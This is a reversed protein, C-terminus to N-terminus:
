IEYVIPDNIPLYDRTCISANIYITDKEEIGYAEHIHGFIHLKPKIQEVKQLLEECGTNIGERTLDCINKPPTHTILVDTDKPIKDWIKRLAKGRPLNFAWNYFEPQWPSGYFKINDVTYEQDQLYIIDELWKYANKKRYFCWDHNGAIMIKEKHPLRNVWSNFSLVDSKSGVNTIDGAIVLVDGDPIKTMKHHLGHTDSICIIKM